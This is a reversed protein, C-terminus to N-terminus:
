LGFLRLLSALGRFLSNSTASVPKDLGLQPPHHHDRRRRRRRLLIMPILCRNTHICVPITALNKAM